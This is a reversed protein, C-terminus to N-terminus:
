FIPLLLQINELDECQMKIPNHLLLIKIKLGLSNKKMEIGRQRAITDRPLDVSFFLEVIRKKSVVHYLRAAATYEKEVKTQCGM